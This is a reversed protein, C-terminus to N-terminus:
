SWLDRHLARGRAAAIHNRHQWDCVACTLGAALTLLAGAALGLAAHILVRRIM